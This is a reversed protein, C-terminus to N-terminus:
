RAARRREYASFARDLLVDKRYVDDRFQVSGASDVWSTYYDIYLPTTKPLFVTRSKAMSWITQQVKHVNWTECSDLLYGAFEMPKEIRVCGHSVARSARRFAMRQPTDHLYISFDNTFMFKINGLANTNGPSQAFRFPLNRPNYSAWDIDTHDVLSDRMYVRYGKRELYRPDKLASFYIERAGISAPVYWFPNLILHTLSGHMQPTEHNKPDYRQNTKRMHRAYEYSHSAARQQGVCVAMDTQIKGDEYAYLWFEPINVLVYRGTEPYRMWRFRELTNRIQDIYEDITRNLRSITRSGLVGDVLLGHRQQYRRVAVVLTSDYLVPGISALRSSDLSHALLMLDTIPTILRSPPFLSGDIEGTLLLRHSVFPLISSTDGYSIMDVTLPPIRPWRHEQRMARYELLARQLQVYRKETPQINRLFATISTSHVAELFERQLPRRVPLHYAHDIRQPNFVGFRLHEAYQLIADTVLLEIRALAKHREAAPLSADLSMMMEERLASAHYWDPDLGHEWSRTLFPLISQIRWPYSDTLVWLASFDRKNYLDILTDRYALERPLYKEQVIAALTSRVDDDNFAVSALSKEREDEARSATSEGNMCGLAGVIGALILAIVLFCRAM